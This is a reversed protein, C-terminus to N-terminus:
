QRSHAVGTNAYIEPLFTSCIRMWSNSGRATWWRLGVADSPITTCSPCICWMWNTKSPARTTYRGPTTSRPMPYAPTSTTSFVRRDSILPHRRGGGSGSSVTGKSLQVGRHVCRDRLCYLKGAADRWFVLKEGMRTVGVPKDKVQSSGLVVYWQNPIM